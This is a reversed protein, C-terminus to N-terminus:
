GGSGGAGARAGIAVLGISTGADGGGGGVSEAMIGQSHDGNTIITSGATVQVAAANGGSSANGGGSYFLGFGGASSGGGGGLSQASIGHSYVGVTTIFTGANTTVFVKGGQGAANGGGGSFFIGGGGGGNGGNGGESIAGVGVSNPGMTTISGSNFNATATGGFGGPGGDGGGGAIGKFDGGNGGNGALSAAALGAAATGNTVVTGSLTATTTGGDAGPGGNGASGFVYSNSGGGGNSGVSQAVIGATAGANVTFAGTNVIVTIPPGSHGSPGTVPQTPVQNCTTGSPAGSNVTCSQNGNADTTITCNGASSCTYQVNITGANGPNSGVGSLKIPGTDNTLSNVDLENPPATFILPTGSLDGTCITVPPSGSTACAALADSSGTLVSLSVALALLVGFLGPGVRFITRSRRLDGATALRTPTPAGGWHRATSAFRSEIWWRIDALVRAERQRELRHKL